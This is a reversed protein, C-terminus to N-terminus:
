GFTQEEQLADQMLQSVSMLCSGRILRITNCCLSFCQKKEASNPLVAISKRLCVSIRSQTCNETLVSFKRFVQDNIVFCAKRTGAHVCVQLRLVLKCLQHVGM